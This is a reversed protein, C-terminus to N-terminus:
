PIPSVTYTVPLNFLKQISDNSKSIICVLLVNLFLKIAELNEIIREPSCRDLDDILVVLTNIGSDELMDNFRERFTRVDLPNEPDSAKIIDEPTISSADTEKGATEDAVADEKLSGLVLAPIATVGGTVYASIAPLAINKMGFSAVRMWNVSKLLSVARDKIKPGFRKNEVLQLIIASLIASKADDYGEFLWSNFYICAIGEYQSREEGEYQDPNLDREIIKMISTKGGGWDGFVGITIPLLETNTVVSRILDAHVKFGLLDKTTENDAWM